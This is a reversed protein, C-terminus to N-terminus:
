RLVRSVGSSSQQDLVSSLIMGIERYVKYAPSNLDYTVKISGVDESAVRVDVDQIFDGNISIKRAIECQAQKVVDPIVNTAIYNPYPGFGGAVDLIPVWLRPWDMTQANLYRYGAFRYRFLRTIADAGQLLLNEQNIVTAWDTRGRNTFYTGAYITDVYSNANAVVSGDEIILITM